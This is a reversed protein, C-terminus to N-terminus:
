HTLLASDSHALLHVRADRCKAALQRTLIHADGAEDDPFHIGGSILQLQPALAPELEACEDADLVRYAVGLEGVMAASRRANQMSLRDRFLRLNGVSSRDYAIGTEHSLTQLAHQSYEALRLITAANRRWAADNCNRLFALGWSMLGPLAGFRVLFPSKERGIWQLLKLPIGPAAWPDSMSPTILGGNAFSTELGVDPQREILTVRFGRQALYYASATGIIGGGLVLIHRDPSM